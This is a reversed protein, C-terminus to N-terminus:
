NPFMRIRWEFDCIIGRYPIENARFTFKTFENIGIIGM